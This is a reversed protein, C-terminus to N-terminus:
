CGEEYGCAMLADGEASAALATYDEDDCARAALSPDLAIAERLSAAAADVDGARSSLAGQNFWGWAYSPDERTAQQFRTAAEHLEGARDARLGAANALQARVRGRDAITLEIDEGDWCMVGDTYHMALWVTTGDPSIRADLVQESDVRWPAQVMHELDVSAGRPGRVSIYLNLAEEDTRRSSTRLYVQTPEGGIEGFVGAPDAAAPSPTLEGLADIAAREGRIFASAERTSIPGKPDRATATEYLEEIEFLVTSREAAGLKLTNISARCSTTGGESCVLRRSVAEGDATWGLFQQTSGLRGHRLNVIDTRADSTATAATATAPLLMSCLAAVFLRM